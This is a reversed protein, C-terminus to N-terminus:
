TKKLLLLLGPQGAERREMRYPRRIADEADESSFPPLQHKTCQGGRSGTLM